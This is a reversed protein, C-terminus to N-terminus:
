LTLNLKAGLPSPEGSITQAIIEYTRIGSGVTALPLFNGEDRGGPREPISFAQAFSQTSTSLLSSFATPDYRERGGGRGGRRHRTPGRFFEDPTAFDEFTFSATGDNIPAEPHLPEIGDADGQAAVAQGAGMFRASAPLTPPPAVSTRAVLAM